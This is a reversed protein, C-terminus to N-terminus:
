KEEEQGFDMLDEESGARVKKKSSLLDDFPLDLDSQNKGSKSISKARHSFTSNTEKNVRSQKQLKVSTEKKSVPAEKKVV